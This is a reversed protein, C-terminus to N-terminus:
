LFSPYLQFILSFLFPFLLLFILLSLFLCFSLSSSYTLFQHFSYITSLCCMAYLRFNHIVSSKEGSVMIAPLHDFMNLTSFSFLLFIDVCFEMLGLFTRPFYLICKLSSLWLVQRWGKQQSLPALPFQGPSSFSSVWSLLLLLLFSLYRTLVICYKREKLQKSHTHNSPFFRANCLSITVTCPQLMPNALFNPQFGSRVKQGDWICTVIM